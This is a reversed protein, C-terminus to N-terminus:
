GQKSNDTPNDEREHQDEELLGITKLLSKGAEGLQARAIHKTANVVNRRPRKFLLPALLMLPTKWPGDPILPEYQDTYKEYVADQEGVVGRWEDHAAMWEGQHEELAATAENMRATWEAKPMTSAAAITDEVRKADEAAQKDINRMHAELTELKTELMQVYALDNPKMIDEAKCSVLGFLSILLAVLMVGFPALWSKPQTNM